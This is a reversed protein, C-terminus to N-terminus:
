NFAQRCLPCTKLQKCCNECIFEIHNSQCPLLKADLFIEYCIICEQEPRPLIQKIQQAKESADVKYWRLHKFIEEKDQLDSERVANFFATDAIGGRGILLEGMYPGMGRFTMSKLATMGSNTTCNPDAGKDILWNLVKASQVRHIPRFNSLNGVNVNAGAQLLKTCMSYRDHFVAHMLATEGYKTRQDVVGPSETLIADFRQEINDEIATFLQQLANNEM